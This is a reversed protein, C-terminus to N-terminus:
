TRARELSPALIQKTRKNTSGLFPEIDRVTVPNTELGIVDNQRLDGVHDVCLAL